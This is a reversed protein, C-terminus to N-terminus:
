KEIYHYAEFIPFTKRAEGFHKSIGDPQPSNEMVNTDISRKSAKTRKGFHV